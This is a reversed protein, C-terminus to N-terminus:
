RRGGSSRQQVWVKDGAVTVELLADEAVRSAAHATLWDAV